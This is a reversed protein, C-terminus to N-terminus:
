YEKSYISVYHKRWDALTKFRADKGVLAKGQRDCIAKVDAPLDDFGAIRAGREGGLDGGGEVKSAGSKRGEKIGESILRRDLETYFATGSLSPNEEKLETGVLFARRAKKADNLFWENESQWALYEPTPPAPGEAKKVPAAEAKKEAANLRTLEEQAELEADMNGADRAEKIQERLEARAKVVQRKTEESYFEELAGIAEQSGKLAAQMEGVQGRLEAVERELKAKQAKVIPLVTEGREVYEEAPIWKAADGHFEAQPKWGMERAREEVDAM